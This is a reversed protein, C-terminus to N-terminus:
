VASLFTQGVVLKRRDLLDGLPVIFILGAAYGFQTLTGVIGISAPSIHFAVAMTELLPQAYYINAVSFACAFAFILLREVSLGAGDRHELPAMTSAVALPMPNTKNNM